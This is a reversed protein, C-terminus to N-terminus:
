DEAEALRSATSSHYMTDHWSQHKRLERRLLKAKEATFVARRRQKNQMTVSGSVGVVSTSIRPEIREQSSPIIMSKAKAESGVLFTQQQSSSVPSRPPEKSFSDTEPLVGAWDVEPLGFLGGYWRSDARDCSSAILDRVADATVFSATRGEDEVSSHLEGTASSKSAAAEFTSAGRRSVHFVSPQGCGGNLSLSQSRSQSLHISGGCSGFAVAAGQIRLALCAM